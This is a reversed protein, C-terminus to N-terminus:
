HEEAADGGARAVILRFPILAILALTLKVGWDAVALSVWLPAVPGAGLLPLTEQAWTPANAPELANFAAAFAISFFLATDVTSGILTSALPAQWWARGRMRDFVSVDLLQAVLFATGSGVAIRFTTADFQSAVLSCFVGVIFGTFVVQRALAPGYLRTMLDTVLFALPYTLAGWTLWDGLLYQVLINSAVVIAAMALIGPLAQRTM